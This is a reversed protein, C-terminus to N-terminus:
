LLGSGVLIAKVGSETIREVEGAGVFEELTEVETKWGTNAHMDQQLEESQVYPAYSVRTGVVATVAHGVGRVEAAWSPGLRESMADSNRSYAAPLGRRRREAFYWRRQKESQWAIPRAAPGPYVAIYSKFAQGMALFMARLGPELRGNLRELKRLLEDLGRIEVSYSM